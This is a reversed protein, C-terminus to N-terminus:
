NLLIFSECQLGSGYYVPLLTLKSPQILDPIGLSGYRNHLLISKRNCIANVVPLTHANTHCIIFIKDKYICIHLCVFTKFGQLQTKWVLSVKVHQKQPFPFIYNNFMM